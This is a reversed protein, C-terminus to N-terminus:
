PASWADWNGSEFGDEFITGDADDLLITDSASYVTAGNRIEVFVEREGSGSCLTWDSVDSSFSQWATWSGCDNRIRMESAWGTGYLYLDVTRSTTEYDERNVVVPYVTSRRGFCQTWYRYWPGQGTLDAVCDGNSDHRVNAQDAPDYVYGVGIERNDTSLINAQHGGSAMWLAMVGAPTTSGAAINEAVHNWFYGVSTLRDGPDTLTDLDCHAVFNRASMNSTHTEAADALLPDLKLPPLGGNDLREQNVLMVVQHEFPPEAAIGKAPAPSAEDAFVPPPQTKQTELALERAGATVSCTVLACLAIGTLMNRVM